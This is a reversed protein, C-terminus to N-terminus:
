KRRMRAQAAGASPAGIAGSLPKQAPASQAACAHHRPTIRRAPTRRQWALRSSRAQRQQQRGSNAAMRGAVGNLRGDELLDNDGAGTTALKLTVDAWALSRAVVRAPVPWLASVSLRCIYASYAKAMFANVRRSDSLKIYVGDGHQQAIYRSAAATRRALWRGGTTKIDLARHRGATNHQQEAVVCRRGDTVNGDEM